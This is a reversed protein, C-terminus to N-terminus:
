LQIRADLSQLREVETQIAMAAGFIYNALPAGYGGGPRDKCPQKDDAPRQVSTTRRHIADVAMALMEVAAHLKDIQEYIERVPEVPASTDSPQAGQALGGVGCDAHLPLSAYGAWQPPMNQYHLTEKERHKWSELAARGSENDMGNGKM